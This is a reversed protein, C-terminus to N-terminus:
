VNNRISSSIVDTISQTDIHSEFYQALLDYEKDRADLGELEATKIHKLGIGTLWLAAIQPNDFIGHIYTGIVRTDETMCGDEDTAAALNRSIIQFLSQGSKRQTQGMHIEYGSGAVGQWLFETRTTTKPAKLATEVPLLGLGETSGPHGELGDPDHVIDGMM